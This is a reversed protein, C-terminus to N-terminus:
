LEIAIKKSISEPELRACAANIVSRASTPSAALQSEAGPREIRTLLLMDEVIADMQDANRKITLLFQHTLKADHQPSELLTETYGKINTIPTRLEHSVNAAFDARVQELRRLETIDTLLIIVGVPSGAGDLLRTSNARLVRPGHSLLRIED